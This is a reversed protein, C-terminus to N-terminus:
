RSGRAWGRAAVKPTDQGAHLFRAPNQAAGRFRVEFHLHPGTSRGSNGTAAIRRGRHVIDGDKVMVRSLHAYRTALDNGHDIEVMLGYQPHQGAYAVVGGAASVVPTGVDAIFDVGEHLAQQGTFPDIRYGFGSANFPADVPMITPLLKKQVAQEFMQADLIGLMDTRNEVDRSLTALKEQFETLTLDQPPLLTAQAGGLGPAQSFRFEHPKFGAITSLREGLADLRTLQAQMEGIKVAMANLNQQVFARSRESESKQVAEVFPMLFPFKLDPGLRLTLWYLGLASAILLTGVLILSIALHHVSWTLSRAKALRGPIVIIQM